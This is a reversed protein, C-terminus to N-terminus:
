AVYRYDEALLAELAAPSSSLVAEYLAAEREEMIGGDLAVARQRAKRGLSQRLDADMLLKRFADTFAQPENEVLIGAGGVIEPIPDTDSAVVPLGAAMAELVPICFGECHTAMGFLDATLYEMHIERNPVMPIFEVKAEIGLAATLDALQKRMEGQGILRLKVDLPAVARILCEPYKPRDLRMVALITLVQAPERRREAAFQSVYVKNYVTVTRRAGYRRAYRHLYNSVCIVLSARRMTYHELPKVMRLLLRPAHRRMADMDTHISVVCPIQLKAGSYAGLSGSHLPGHARIIDPEIEELVRAVLRFYRPLSLVTPRGVEHVHLSASGGLARVQSAEVDKSCLSIVHVEDFLNRPNWYRDKIEGKEVYKYLPDAAIVALRRVREDRRRRTYAGTWPV